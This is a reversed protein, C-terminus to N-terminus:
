HRCDAFGGFLSVGETPLQGKANHGVSHIFHQVLRFVRAPIPKALSAWFVPVFLPAFDSTLWIRKM